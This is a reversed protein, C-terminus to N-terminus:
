HPGFRMQSTNCRHFSESCVTHCDVIGQFDPRLMGLASRKGLRRWHVPQPILHALKQSLFVHRLDIKQNGWTWNSSLMRSDNKFWVSCTSYDFVVHISMGAAGIPGSSRHGSSCRTCSPWGEDPNTPHSANPTKTGWSTWFLCRSTCPGQAITSPYKM